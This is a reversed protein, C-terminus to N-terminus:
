HSLSLAGLAPPRPKFGPWSVLDWLSCSLGLLAWYIFLIKKFLSLPQLPLTHSLGRQSCM